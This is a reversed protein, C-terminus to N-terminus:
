SAILSFIQTATKPLLEQKGVVDKEKDIDEPLGDQVKEEVILTNTINFGDITTEYHSVPKEKITYTILKGETDYMPLNDFTYTWASEHTVKTEDIQEDNALLYVTISTPRLHNVNNDDVWSKIGTVKTTDVRLNTIDFGNITTEYGDIEHEQISYTYAKGNQDFSPLATITLEWSDLATLTYTGVKETDG